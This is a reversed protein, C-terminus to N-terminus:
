PMRVPKISQVCDLGIGLKAELANLLTNLEEEIVVLTIEFYYAEKPEPMRINYPQIIASQLKIAM